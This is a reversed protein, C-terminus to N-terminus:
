CVGEKLRRKLFYIPVMIPSIIVSFCYLIFMLTYLPFPHKNISEEHEKMVDKIIKVHTIPLMAITIISLIIDQILCKFAKLIIM